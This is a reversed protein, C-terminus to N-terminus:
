ETERLNDLFSKPRVKSREQFWARATDDMWRESWGLPRLKETLKGIPLWPASSISDLLAFGQARHIESPTLPESPSTM